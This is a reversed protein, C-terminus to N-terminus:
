DDPILTVNEVWLKGSAKLKPMGADVIDIFVTGMAGRDMHNQCSILVNKLAKRQLAWDEVSSWVTQLDGAFMKAVEARQGHLEITIQTRELTHASNHLLRLFANIMWLNRFFKVYTFTVYLALSKLSTCVQINHINCLPEEHM